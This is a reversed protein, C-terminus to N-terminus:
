PFSTPRRFQSQWHGTKQVQGASPRPGLQWREILREVQASEGTLLLGDANVVDLMFGAVKARLKPDRIECLLESIYEVGLGFEGSPKRAGYTMLERCLECVMQDFQEGSVGIRLLFTERNLRELQGTDISREALLALAALRVMADPRNPSDHRM